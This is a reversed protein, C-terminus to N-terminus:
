ELLKIAVCASDHKRSQSTHHLNGAFITLLYFGNAQKVFFKMLSTQYRGLYKESMYDEKPFFKSKKSFSLLSTEHIQIANPSARIKQFKFESKWTFFLLIM